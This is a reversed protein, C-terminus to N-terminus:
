APTEAATLPHQVVYNAANVPIIQKGVLTTRNLVGAEQLRKRAMEVVEPRDFLTARMEPVAQLFALTYTGSAGGVDLLRRAKGPGALTVIRGAQPAGVAHMAGIFARLGAEPSTEAAGPGAVAASLDSWSRWLRAAVSSSSAPAPM